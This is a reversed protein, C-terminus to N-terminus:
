FLPSLPLFLSSFSLLPLPLPLSLIPLPLPLSPEVLLLFIFPIISPPFYLIVSSSLLTHYSFPASLLHTSSSYLFLTLFPKHLLIPLLTYSFFTQSPLIFSVSSWLLTHYTFPLSIPQPPLILSFHLLLLNTFFFHLFLTPFYPKHLFFYLSPFSSSLLSLSYLFHHALCLAVILLLLLSHASGPSMSSSTVSHLLELHILPFPFSVPFQLLFRTPKQSNSNVICCFSLRFFIHLFTNCVVFQMGTKLHLTYRM